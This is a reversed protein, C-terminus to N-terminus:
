SFFYTLMGCHALGGLFLPIIKFTHESPEVNKKFNNELNFFWHKLVYHMRLITEHSMFSKRSHWRLSFYQKRWYTLFVRKNNFCWQCFFHFNIKNELLDWIGYKIGPFKQLLFHDGFGSTFTGNPLFYRDRKSLAGM